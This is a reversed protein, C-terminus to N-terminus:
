LVNIQLFNIQKNKIPKSHNSDTRGCSKKTKNKKDTGILHSNQLIVVETLDKYNHGSLNLQGDVFNKLKGQLIQLIPQATSTLEKTKFYM